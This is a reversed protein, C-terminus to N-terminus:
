SGLFLHIHPHIIPSVNCIKMWTKPTYNNDYDALPNYGDTTTPVILHFQVLFKIVLLRLNGVVENKFACFFSTNLSSYTLVLNITNLMNQEFTPQLRTFICQCQFSPDCQTSATWLPLPMGGISIADKFNDITVHIDNTDCCKIDLRLQLVLLLKIPRKKFM